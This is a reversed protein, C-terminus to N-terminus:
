LPPHIRFEDAAGDGDTDIEEEVGNATYAFTSVRTPVWDQPEFDLFPEHIAEERILRGRQDHFYRIYVSRAAEEEPLFLGITGTRLGRFDYSHSILTDDSWDIHRTVSRGERTLNGQADYAFSHPRRFENLNQECARCDDPDCGGRGLVYRTIRQCDDRQLGFICAADPAPRWDPTHGALDSWFGGPRRWPFGPCCAEACAEYIFPGPDLGADPESAADPVLVAADLEPAADPIVVAADPVPAADPAPGVAADPDGVVAADAVAADSRAAADVTPTAADSDPEVASDRAPPVVADTSTPEADPRSPVEVDEVSAAADVPTDNTDDSPTCASVVLSLWVCGGVGIRM